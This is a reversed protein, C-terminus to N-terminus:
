SRGMQFLRMLHFACILARLRMASSETIGIPTCGQPSAEVTRRGGSFRQYRVLVNLKQVNTLRVEYAFRDMGQADVDTACLDAKSDDCVFSANDRAGRKGGVSGPSEIGRHLADGYAPRDIARRLGPTQTWSEEHFWRDANAEDTRLEDGGDM